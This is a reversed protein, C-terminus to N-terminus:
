AKSRRRLAVPRARPHRRALRRLVDADGLAVQAPGKGSLGAAWAGHRYADLVFRADHGLLPAYAATNLLMARDYERDAAEKWAAGVLGRVKHFAAGRVDGTPLRQAPVDVLALLGRPLEGRQVLRFRPNDTLVVGGLLCAAADDYAGTISTGSRLGAQAAARLVADPKWAEGVADLMARVVAVAVASSSKLGREPPIDSDVQIRWAAGSRARREVERAAALALRARAPPVRRGGSHVSWADANRVRVLVRFDLGFAAGKGTAMANVITGAGGAEGRGNM